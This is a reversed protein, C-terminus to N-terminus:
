PYAEAADKRECQQSVMSVHPQGQGVHSHDQLDYAEPIEEGQTTITSLTPDGREVPKQFAAVDGRVDANSSQGM